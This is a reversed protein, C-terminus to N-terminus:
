FSALLGVKAIVASFSFNIENNPFVTGALHIQEATTLGSVDAMIGFFIKSGEILRQYQEQTVQSGNTNFDLGLFSTSATRFDIFDAFDGTFEQTEFRWLNISSNYFLNGAPFVAWPDILPNPPSGAVISDYFENHRLQQLTIFIPISIDNAYPTFFGAPGPYWCITMSFPMYRVRILRLVDNSPIILPTYDGFFTSYYFGSNGTVGGDPVAGAILQKNFSSTFPIEVKFNKIDEESQVRFEEHRESRNILKDIVPDKSFEIEENPTSGVQLRM